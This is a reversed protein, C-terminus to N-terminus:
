ANAPFQSSSWGHRHRRHRWAQHFCPLSSAKKATPPTGSSGTLSRTSAHGPAAPASQRAPGRGAASLPATAKLRRRNRMAGIGAAPTTALGNGGAGQPDHAVALGIRQDIADGARQEIRLIVVRQGGAMRGRAFDPEAVAASTAARAAADPRPANRCRRRVCLGSLMLTASLDSARGSNGEASSEALEAHGAAGLNKGYLSQVQAPVEVDYTTFRSVVPAYM